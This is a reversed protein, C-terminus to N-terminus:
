PGTRCVFPTLSEPTVVGVGRPYNGDVSYLSVFRRVLSRLERILSLKILRSCTWVIKSVERLGLFTGGLGIWLLPDPGRLRLPYPFPPFTSHTVTCSLRGRTM